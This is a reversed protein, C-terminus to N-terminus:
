GYQFFDKYRQIMLTTEFRKINDFGAIKLTKALTKDKLIRDIQQAFEEPQSPDAYLAGKGGVEPMPALSSAVVPTGCAQAETLPWGFGESFSPFVFVKAQNILAELLAFEPKIVEVVRDSLGLQQISKKLESNLAKGAFCVKGNWDPLYEILQLLLVKNKRELNSGLHLIYDYSLLDDVNGLRLRQIKVEKSLQKFPANFGNHIVTWGPKKQKGHLDVLQDLTFKSVCAIKDCKTLHHLIWKQLFVGFRSAPCYADKYGLAGRIALVDHCTISSWTAPLSRMYYANSHDCVHYYTHKKEKKVKLKLLLPFLLWKDVYGFWKGLGSLSNKFPKAFLVKPRFIEVTYEEQFGKVLMQAFREMSEQYDLPYNGILVIKRNM